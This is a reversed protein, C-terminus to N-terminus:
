SKFDSGFKNHSNFTLHESVPLFFGFCILTIGRFPMLIGGLYIIKTPAKRWEWWRAEEQVERERDGPRQM